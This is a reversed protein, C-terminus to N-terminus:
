WKLESSKKLIAKEAKASEREDKTLIRTTTGTTTTTKICDCDDCKYINMRRQKECYIFESM